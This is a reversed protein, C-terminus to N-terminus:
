LQDSERNLDALKNNLQNKALNRARINQGDAFEQFSKIQQAYAYNNTKVYLNALNRLREPRNLYTWEIELLQIKEQYAFIKNEVNNIKNKLDDVRFQVFFMAVISALLLFFLSFNFIYFRYNNM